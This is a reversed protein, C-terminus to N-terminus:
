PRRRQTLRSREYMPVRMGRHTRYDRFHGEGPMKTYAGGFRGFRGSGFIGTVEGSEGFSFELSVTVGGDTLTAPAAHEDISAWVVGTEPLLSTPCWVAKALYRRLAGSNLEPGGTLSALPIASLFLVRGTGVVAGYGDPVRVPLGLPLRIRIIRLAVFAAAVAMGAAIALWLSMAARERSGSRAHAGPVGPWSEFRPCLSPVEIPPSVFATRTVQRRPSPIAQVGEPLAIRARQRSM